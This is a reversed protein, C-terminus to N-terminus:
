LCLSTNLLGDLQLRYQRREFGCNVSGNLSPLCAVAVATNRSKQKWEPPLGRYRM